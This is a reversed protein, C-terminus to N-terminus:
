EYDHSHVKEWKKVCEHSCFFRTSDLTTEFEEGSIIQTRCQDCVYIPPTYMEYVLYQDRAEVAPDISDCQKKLNM